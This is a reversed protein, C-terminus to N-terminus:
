LIKDLFKSNKIIIIKNIFSFKKKYKIYITSITLFDYM